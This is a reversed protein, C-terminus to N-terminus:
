YECKNTSVRILEFPYPGQRVSVKLSYGTPIREVPLIVGDTQSAPNLAKRFGGRLFPSM